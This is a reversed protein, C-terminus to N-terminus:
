RAVKALAQGPVPANMVCEVRFLKSFSCGLQLADGVVCASHACNGGQGNCSGVGCYQPVEAVCQRFCRALHARAMFHALIQKFRIQGGPAPSPDYISTSSIHMPANSTEFYIFSADLGSLQQM